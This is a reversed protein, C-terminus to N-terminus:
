MFGTESRFPNRLKLGRIEQGDQLDETFLISCDTKLAAAIILSDYFSYRWRQQIDLTEEYLAANVYVGCLPILVSHLYNKASEVSMPSTFKRMSLNLFEQVVQSSICGLGTELGEEVLRRAIECKDTHLPDFTYVLINTDLFFRASM